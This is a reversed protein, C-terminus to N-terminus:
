RVLPVRKSRGPLCEVGFAARVVRRMLDKCELAEHKKGDAVLCLSERALARLLIDGEKENLKGISM